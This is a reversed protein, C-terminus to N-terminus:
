LLSSIDEDVRGLIGVPTGVPVTQDEAVLIKRLVGDGKAKIEEVAKNNEIVLLVDGVAVADGEQKEWKEIYGETMTLGLKPMSIYEAM